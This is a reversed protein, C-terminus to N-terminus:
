GAPGIGIVRMPGPKVRVFIAGLAESNSDRAFGRMYVVRIKEGSKSLFQSLQTVV